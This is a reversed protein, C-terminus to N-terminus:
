EAAVPSGLVTGEVSLEATGRIDTRSGDSVTFKAYYASALLHFVGAIATIGPNVNDDFPVSISTGLADFLEIKIKHPVSDVNTSMLTVGLGVDVYIPPTFRVNSQAAPALAEIATQLNSVSTQLTSLAGVSTQINNVTSQLVNVSTQVSQVSQLIAPNGANDASAMGAGGAFLALVLISFILISRNVNRGGYHHNSRACFGRASSARPM